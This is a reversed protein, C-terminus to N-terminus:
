KVSGSSQPQLPAPLSDGGPTENAPSEADPEVSLEEAAPTADSKRGFINPLFKKRDGDAAFVEFVAP